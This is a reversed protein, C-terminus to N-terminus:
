IIPRSLGCEIPRTVLVGWITLLPPCSIFEESVADLGGIEIKELVEKRIFVKRGIRVVPLKGQFIWARVTALSVPIREPVLMVPILTSNKLDELTIKNRNM